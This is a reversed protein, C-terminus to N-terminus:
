EPQLVCVQWRKKSGLCEVYADSMDFPHGQDNREVVSLQGNTCKLTVKPAHQPDRQAHLLGEPYFSLVRNDGSCRRQFGPPVFLPACMKNSPKKAKCEAVGANIAKGVSKKLNKEGGTKYLLTYIENGLRNRIMSIYKNIKADKSAVEQMLGKGGFWERMEARVYIEWNKNIAEAIKPVLSQALPDSKVEELTTYGKPTNAFVIGEVTKNWSDSTKIDHEISMNVIHQILVDIKYKNNLMLQLVDNANPVAFAGGCAVLTAQLSVAKRYEDWLRKIRDLYLSIEVEDHNLEGIFNDETITRQYFDLALETADKILFIVLAINGVRGAIRLFKAGRAAETAAELEANLAIEARLAEVSPRAWKFTEVEIASLNKMEKAFAKPSFKKGAALAQEALTSEKGRLVAIRDRLTEVTEHMNGLKVPDLTEAFNGAGDVGTAAYKRLADQAAQLAANAEALEKSVEAAAAAASESSQVVNELVGDTNARWRKFIPKGDATTGTVEDFTDGPTFKHPPSPEPTLNRRAQEAARRAAAVEEPTGVFREGNPTVEYIGAPEVCLKPCAIVKTKARAAAREAEWAVDGLAAQRKAAASVLQQELEKDGSLSAARALIQQDAASLRSLDQGRAADVAKQAAQKTKSFTGPIESMLKVNVPKGGCDLVKGTTSDVSWGTNLNLDDESLLYNTIADQLDFSSDAFAVHPAIASLTILFAAAGVSGIFKKINM